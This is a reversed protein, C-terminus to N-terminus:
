VTSFAASGSSGSKEVEADIADLYGLAAAVDLCARTEKASGLAVAFLAKQNGLRAYSGEAVNLAMSAGCRRLQRALDSDHRGIEVMTPRLMRLVALADEYIRLM